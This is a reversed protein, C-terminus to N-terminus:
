LKELAKELAKVAGVPNEGAAIRILGSVPAYKKLEGIFPFIRWEEAGFSPAISWFSCHNLLNALKTATEEGGKLVAYLVGGGSSNFQKETLSNQPHSFLRPYYVKEVQPSKELVRAAELALVSFLPFVKELREPLINKAVEPQMCVQRYRPSKKIEEIREASGSIRGGAVVDSVTEWKSMSAVEIVEVDGNEQRLPHFDPVFTTDVVAVVGTGALVEMTRAWDVVPMEMSNGIIEFFYLSFPYDQLHEKIQDLDTPDVFRVYFGKQQYSEALQRTLPYLAESFLAGKGSEVLTELVSGIAAMGCNTVATAEAGTQKSIAKELKLQQPSDILYHGETYFRTAFEEASEYQGVIGQWKM